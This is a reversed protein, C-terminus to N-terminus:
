SWRRAPGAASPRAPRASAADAMAEAAESCAIATRWADRQRASEDAANRVQQDLRGLSDHGTRISASWAGALHLDLSSSSLSVSWSQEEEGLHEAADKRQGELKRQESAAGAARQEAAQRQLARVEAIRRMTKVDNRNPM